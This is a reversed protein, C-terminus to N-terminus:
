FEIGIGPPRIGDVRRLFYSMSLGIPISISVRGAKEDADALRWAEFELSGVAV